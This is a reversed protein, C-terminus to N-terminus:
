TSGKVIPLLNGKWGKSVPLSGEFGDIVNFCNTYGKDIACKAAAESRVGSKCLFLLPVDQNPVVKNLESMFNTNLNRAPFFLWSILCIHKNCKSLDPKGVHAWEEPTRVDILLANKNEQLFAWADRSNINKVTIMSFFRFVHQVFYLAIYRM